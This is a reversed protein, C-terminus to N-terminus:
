GSVSPLKQDLPQPEYRTGGWRECSGIVVKISLPNDLYYCIISFRIRLLRHSGAIRKHHTLEATPAEIIVITLLEDLLCLQDSRSCQKNHNSYRQDVEATKEHGYSMNMLENNQMGDNM